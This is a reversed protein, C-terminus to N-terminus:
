NGKVIECAKVYAWGVCDAGYQDALRACMSELSSENEGMRMLIVFRSIMESVSM